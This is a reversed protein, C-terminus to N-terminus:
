IMTLWRRKKMIFVGFTKNIYSSHNISSILAEIITDYDPSKTVWVSKVKGNTLLAVTPTIIFWEKANTLHGHICSCGEDKNNPCYPPIEILAIRLLDENGQIERAMQEIKPITAICDPCDHHYLMILWNGTKLQEGIDIHNIIPLEKGVWTEPELVEYQSTVLKPESLLLVPSSIAITSIGILLVVCLQIWTPRPQLWHAPNLAKQAEIKQRFLFLGLVAPLDIAFLTIWPNVHVKGFCGCSEAGTLGKYLTVCCFLSFCAAAALWAARKFLGSVLWIGLALEFEVQFIMFYRNSWIDTNAMPTTLLEHGKLVAAALLPHRFFSPTKTGADFCRTAL